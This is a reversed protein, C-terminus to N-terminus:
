DDDHHDRHDKAQTAAAAGAAAQALSRGSQMGPAPIMGSWFAGTVAVLAAAVVWRSGEAAPGAGPKYGTLTARALNDRHLLSTFIVAVVHAIVLALTAHALTERVHAM